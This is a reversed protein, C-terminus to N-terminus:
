SAAANQRRSRLVGISLVIASIAFAVFCAESLPSPLFFMGLLGLVSLGGCFQRCPFGSASGALLRLLWIAISAWIAAWVLGLGLKDSENPRVSLALRPSGSARSFRLVNGELQIEIPLSLGGAQTWGPFSVHELEVRELTENSISQRAVEDLVLSGAVGSNSNVGVGFSLRGSAPGSARGGGGGGFGGGGQQGGFAMGYRGRSRSSQDLGDNFVQEARTGRQMANGGAMGPVGMAGALNPANTINLERNQPQPKAPQQPQQQALKESDVAKNLEGLQDVAQKRRSAREVESVGKGTALQRTVVKGGTPQGPKATQATPKAESEINLKFKLGLDPSTSDVNAGLLSDRVSSLNLVGDGNTDEGPDLAGNGNRDEGNAIIGSNGFFLADNNDTIVQRQFGGGQQGGQGFFLRGNANRQAQQQAAKAQAAQQQDKAVYFNLGSDTTDIIIRSEQDACKLDFERLSEALKRGEDSQPAAGPGIGSRNDYNHLALGIQKLNYRAQMKQSSPNNGEIVRMLENAEQLWTSRYAVDATDAAQPSLNNRLPDNIPKASWEQPVHVAWLTRAVPMGFEKDDSLSVVSPTPLEIDDSWVKLGRPLSGTVLRGSLVLKVQFSLDAESTKPLAILQYTKGDKKLEVLRSPQDAVFVSLAQSKPPVQLALFQRSRNKITYVCQMRWTGDAALVTTLDALNVSAAAGAQAAFSKLSWKPAAVEANQGRVRLVATAQDVLFQDVVIPLEDRQVAEGVEGIPALQNLSLNIVVVYQRQTDLPSFPSAEQGDAPAVAAADGETGVHREFTITPATVERKEAPPPLTATALLFYRSGVPDQLTVTWRTRGSGEGASAFSTQRIGAGQFDLKGALWDPTTFTFTDSAAETIKWQLALSYDVATDSVTVLSVADASLKPVARALDFGLVEPMVVNSTFVFKAPRSLKNRLEESCHEPDSAKWTNSSSVTAQYAPDFWVAAQTVLKSLELPTPASIEAIADEPEKAVNGQLVVEVAGIRPETFEVTLVNTAPDIHWDQLATADVDVPLWVPPLQVSVSSRLAGALEWRLRSSMRVKRREVILAHEALGTSEPARRQASFGIEFPRATYRFASLPATTVSPLNVPSAFQNANIQTLGKTAINKLSFQPAAFLGVVGFDRSVQLPAFVPVQISVAEDAVRTELFLEFALSTQDSVARRLFVRLVRGDVNEGLEWGGVDPGSISRVKLEKPLSFSLDNIAGRPVKFLWGSAIRVGADEVGVATASDSQVIADVAGAAQKPQWALRVDGGASIPVEFYNKKEAERGITGNRMRFLNSAGNVRFTADETPPVFLLKGSPLPDVGIILQGAPGQQNVPVEATLDLVHLGPKDIVVHLRPGGKEDRVVLAAPAEDLRAESLSALRLPIPLVIQQKRFSFLTIRATVKATADAGDVKKNPAVVVLAEAVLGGLPAPPAVRSEPHAANWLEVFKAHPLYVREAALPDKAEDFPLIITPRAPIDPNPNVPTAVAPRQVQPEQAFASNAALFAFLCLSATRRTLSRTWFAKTKMRPWATALSEGAARILWLTIAAVTGFFIGDLTNQWALPAIAALALPLTLGLAAWSAKLTRRNPPLLWALFALAAIWVVRGTWGAARNEYVLDLGIGSGVTETGLYRFKKTAAGDQSELAMTLSLLGGLKSLLRSESEGVALREQPHIQEDTSGANQALALRRRKVEDGSKGFQIASRDDFPIGSHEVSDLPAWFGSEKDAKTANPRKAPDAIAGPTQDRLERGDQVKSAFGKKAAKDFLRNKYDIEVQQKQKVELSLESMPESKTAAQPASPEAAMPTMAQPAAMPVNISGSSATATSKSAEAYFYGNRADASEASDFWVTTGGSASMPRAANRASQVSPAAVLWLFSGVGLLVVPVAVGRKWGWRFRSWILVIIALVLVIATAMRGLNSWRPLSLSKPLNSLWDSRDLPTAPDPVFVGQSDTLLLDPPYRLEWQQDLVQMPQSVGAGNLVTLEPPPQRLEGTGRLAPVNTRYFLQLSRETAPDDSPRLPILFAGDARRVEVPQGDVLAAWLITSPQPDITSPKAQGARLGLGDVMLRARLSQVGVATFAFTAQHQFEGAPSLVSSITAIRCIATPVPLRDFREDAISINPAGVFYRYAAVIRQSQPNKLPAPLDIPDVEPLNAKNGDQATITLRQDGEAEVAIFGNQRDAQLIRLHPISLAFPPRAAVSTVVLTATGVLHRDLRLTWILEGNEGPRSTQEVIRAASNFIQFRLDKGASEALAVELVRLGGGTITLESEFHAHLTQKDLRAFTLTRAAVRSPKREIKLTGGFRTDQYAFGLRTGPVPVNTPDLGNIEGPVVDLDADAKIVYTGDSVSSQPLRLEPLTVDVPKDEVPWGDPDRHARVELKAQQGPRLPQPLPIRIHNIGPEDEKTRVQWPLPQGNVSVATLLWEAPLSVELEFLPAFSTEMTAATILDLGTATLDFISSISAQVDQEKPQAVFGLSFDEKWVDFLLAVQGADTAGSTGISKLDAEGVTATRVGVSEVTRLRVAPAHQVLARGIHSTVQNITLTPVRWSEGAPVAMVGRFDIRRAGDFPQRYNLTIRTSNADDPHDSLEWAELGNSDVDTIELTKPVVCVLRDLPTGHVQLATVAHWTIEGPAVRLGFGTTAFLLSDTARERQRDTLQIAVANRKGGVALEYNAPQDNAAPREVSLGDLQLHKGAPVAIKLTGAIRPLVGVSAVKDAGVASLPTSLELTLTHEGRTESLLYLTQENRGLKAPQGNLKASEVAMAGLPLPLGQWADALQSIKITAEVVLQEGEFKASYTAGSIVAGVPATTTTPKNKQADRYLKLFEDRPLLVGRQDKAIITDLDEVPVFVRRAEVDQAATSFWCTLALVTTVIARGFATPRLITLFVNPIGIM